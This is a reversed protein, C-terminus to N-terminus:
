NYFIDNLGKFIAITSLLILIRIIWHVLSMLISDFGLISFVKGVVKYAVFFGISNVIIFLSFDIYNNGTLSCNETFLEIINKGIPSFM